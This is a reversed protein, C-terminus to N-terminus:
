INYKNINILIIDIYKIGWIFILSPTPEDRSMLVQNIQPAAPPLHPPIRRNTISPIKVLGFTFNIAM